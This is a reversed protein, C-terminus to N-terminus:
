FNQPGAQRLFAFAENCRRLRDELTMQRAEVELLMPGEYGCLDLARMFVPWKIVGSGPFGHLDSRGDNDHLHVNQLRRGALAPLDALNGALQAHGTDLVFGFSDANRAKIRAVLDPNSICDPSGMLSELCFVVPLDAVYAGLEELSQDMRELARERTAELPLRFGAHCSITAAGLEAALDATRKLVEIQIIRSEDHLLGQDPPHLSAIRIGLADAVRKLRAVAGPKEWVFDQGEWYFTLEIAKVGAAAFLPLHTEPNFPDPRTLVSSVVPLRVWDRRRPIRALIKQLGPLRDAIARCTTRFVRESDPTGDADAPDRIDWHIRRVGTRFDPTEDKARDGITVVVDMEQDVFQRVSKPHHGALDLGQEAMLKRAMPHLDPWPEVGGSFIGVPSKMLAKFLAEAMQSRGANGTCVFLINYPQDIM